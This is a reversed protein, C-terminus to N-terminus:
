ELGFFKFAGKMYSFFLPNNVDVKQNNQGSVFCSWKNSKKLLYAMYLVGPESGGKYGAFDVTKNGLFPANYSLIKNIEESNAKKLEFLLDCIESSSAFWEIDNTYLPKKGWKTIGEILEEYTKVKLKKLTKLKEIRTSKKFNDVDNATFFARTRFMEMTALFPINREDVVNMRKLLAEVKERGVFDLLHDTATNDSIEIMKRAFYFLEKKEGSPINQMQGSPLSKLEEKITLLDTWRAEGVNIKENLALLIYLKFTSGLPLRKDKNLSIHEKGGENKYLITSKSNSKKLFNIIEDKSSFKLEPTEEGKYLLGSIKFNSESLTLEFNLKSKNLTTVTASLPSSLNIKVGDCKGYDAYISKFISVLQGEPIATIFSKHFNKEYELEFNKDLLSCIYDAKKEIEGSQSELGSTWLGSVKGETDEFTRFKNYYENTKIFVLYGGDEKTEFKHESCNGYDKNMKNFFDVYSNYPFSTRFKSGFNKSYEEKSVKNNMSDCILKGLEAGGAFVETSILLLLLIKLM